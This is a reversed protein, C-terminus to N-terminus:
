IDAENRSREHLNSVDEKESRLVSSILLAVLCGLIAGVFFVIETM